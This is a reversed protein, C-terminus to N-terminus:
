RTLNRRVAEEDKSTSLYVWSTAIDAKIHDSINVRRPYFMLSRYKIVEYELKNRCRSIPATYANEYFVNNKVLKMVNEYPADGPKTGIFGFDFNNEGDEGVDQKSDEESNLISADEKVM